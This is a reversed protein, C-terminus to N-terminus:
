CLAQKVKLQLLQQSDIRKSSHILKIMGKTGIKNPDMGNEIDVLYVEVGIGLFYQLAQISSKLADGDLAVYVTPTGCQLIKRKIGNNIVKGYLPAANYKTAIADLAGEVLVVPMQWNVQLEFGVIDKRPIIPNKFSQQPLFSRTTFYNLIGNDDYNPFIIYGKWPGEDCYGINYKVFDGISLGRQSILYDVAKGWFFNNKDVEYLPKFNPPLQVLTNTAEQDFNNRPTLTSVSALRLFKERPVGIRKFLSHLSRGKTECVWCHWAESDLQIALKPKKHNCFPCTFQVNGKGTVIGQGLVEQVLSLKQTM